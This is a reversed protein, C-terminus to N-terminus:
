FRWRIESRYLQEGWRHVSIGYAAGVGFDVRDCIFMRLGCGLNAYTNGSSLRPQGTDPDTFCGHQFSWGNFELTGIIPDKDLIRHLMHNLSLHYHLVSGQYGSNGGIPIWESVQGQLCTEPTFKMAVLLSPELTTHGTGLGRQAQGTPMFTRFQYSCILFDSDLLLSKVGFNMDTFGAAFPYRDPYVARYPLEIFLGANGAAAETYISLENYHLGREGLVNTPPKPGKGKGDARAWFFESRDPYDMGLDADFRLRQQTVPRPAEVFM